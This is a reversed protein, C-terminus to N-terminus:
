WGMCGNKASIKLTEDPLRSQAECGFSRVRGPPRLAAIAGMGSRAWGPVVDMGSGRGDRFWAWGPVVGMGSGRGDLVVGVWM